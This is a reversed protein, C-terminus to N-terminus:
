LLCMTFLSHKGLSPSSDFLATELDHHGDNLVTAETFPKTKNTHSYCNNKTQAKYDATVPSVAATM